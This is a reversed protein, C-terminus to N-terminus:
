SEETQEPSEEQIEANLAMYQKWSLEVSLFSLDSVLCMAKIPNLNKITLVGEKQSRLVEGADWKFRPNELIYLVQKEIESSDLGSIRLDYRLFGKESSAQANGYQEVDSFDQGSPDTQIVEEDNFSEDPLEEFYNEQPEKKETKEMSFDPAEKEEHTKKEKEEDTNQKDQQHSEQKQPFSLKEEPLNEQLPEKYVELSSLGEETKIAKPDPPTTEEIKPESLFIEESESLPPPPPTKKKLFFFNQKEYLPSLPSSPASLSPSPLQQ